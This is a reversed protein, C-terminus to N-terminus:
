KRRMVVTCWAGVVIRREPALGQARQAAIVAQAQDSYFGSLIARGGRRLHRALAPAMAVLPRQLINAAVLDFRRGRLLRARFGDAHVARMLVAAQNIGANARAVRVAEPALDIGLVPSRWLLAMALSLIGTGCGMDLARGARGRRAVGRGRPWRRGLADIALLCGRTTEHEGSGFAEGADICLAIRGPALPRDHSPHVLFRGASLPTFSRRNEALWNVEPLAEVTVPPEAIGAAAAALALSMALQGRDPEPGIGEIKWEGGPALEFASVAEAFNELAEAFAQAAAAPVNLRIVVMSNSLDDGVM